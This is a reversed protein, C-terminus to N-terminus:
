GDGSRSRRACELGYDVEGRPWALLSDHLRQLAAPDFGTEEWDSFSIGFRLHKWLLGNKEEVANCPDLFVLPTASSFSDLLTCGGPKAVIASSARIVDYLSHHDSTHLRYPEARAGLEIMEPFRAPTNTVSTASWHPDLAFCRDGERRSLLEDATQVVLDLGFSTRVMEDAARRYDGVGWGGGHVVTRHRRQSFPLPRDATVQLERVVRRESWSWFRVDRAAGRNNENAKFSASSDADAHCLDVTLQRRALSEYARLVPLWFGSWVSFHTVEEQAWGAFLGAVRERDLSDRQDRRLGDAARALGPHSHFAARHQAHRRQHEPTYHAELVEVRAPAGLQSMRERVLLAPIYTGLGVCSALIVTPTEM